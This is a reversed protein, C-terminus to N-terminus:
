LRECGMHLSVAFGRSEREVIYGSVHVEARRVFGGDRKKQM